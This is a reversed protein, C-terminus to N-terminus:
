DAKHGLQRELQKVRNFLDDLQRARVANKRWERNPLAPQGSSYVGPETIDSTIMSNGTIQVKDAISIHGNISCMGAIVVYKGIKCSGAMGTAGCICAHDGIECNHAIHVQDDIIVNTGIITNELAGRDITCSAGINTRDGIVVTGTQPIPLWEGRENAYGFGDSGVVTNSRIVVGQGIQLRHYLSVNAHIISDNGIETGEGVHAGAGIQVNDGLFVEDGIVANPGISVNEGLRATASIVASPAIGSAVRPTNDFLQAIRAFAAHPNDVVIAKDGVLDAHKETILVGAAGTDALESKYKTNTFFSLQQANAGTLTNVGTIPQKAFDDNAIPQAGVHLALDAISYHPM